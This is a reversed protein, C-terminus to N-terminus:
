RLGEVGAQILQIDKEKSNGLGLQEATALWLTRPELRPLKAPLRWEDLLRAATSDIAVPDRSAFLTFNEVAYNADPFPGGAYQLMLGDLITIVVKDLIRPDAYIEAMYPDGFLPEKVFRRWNDLNPLTMNALAGNVGTLFSDTLSPVNIVVTVESSLIRSFFSDSSLDDDTNFVDKLNRVRKKRFASDGYILKGLVPSTVQAKRDYGDVADVWRLQYHKGDSAFGAALLDEKRRDWVIIQQPAIGAEALGEVIADVVEPNTGSVAGGMTSVKIGVRDTKKILSAWAEAPTAKNTTRTILTNVMRRVVSANVGRKEKLAAAEVVFFVESPQTQARLSGAVGLLLFAAVIRCRNCSRFFRILRM